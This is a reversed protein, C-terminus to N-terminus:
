AFLTACDCRRRFHRATVAAGQTTASRVSVACMSRGRRYIGLRERTVERCVTTPRRGPGGGAGDSNATTPSM